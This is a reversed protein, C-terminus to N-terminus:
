CWQNYACDVREELGEGCAGCQVGVGRRTAIEVVVHSQFVPVVRENVSVDLSNLFNHCLADVSLSLQSLSAPHAAIKHGIRPKLWVSCPSERQAIM